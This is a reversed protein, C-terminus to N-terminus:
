IGVFITLLVNSTFRWSFNQGVVQTLCVFQLSSRGPGGVLMETESLVVHEGLKEARAEDCVSSFSHRSAGNVQYQARLRDRTCLPRGQCEQDLSACTRRGSRDVIATAM